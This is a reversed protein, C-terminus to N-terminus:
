YFFVYTFFYQIAILLFILIKNKLKVKHIKEKLVNLQNQMNGSYNNLSQRTKIDSDLDSNKENEIKQSKLIHKRTKYIALPILSFFHSIFFLFLYFYPNCINYIGILRAIIIGFPYILLILLKPNVEGIEIM